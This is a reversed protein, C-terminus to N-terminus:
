PEPLFATKCVPCIQGPSAECPQRWSGRPVCAPHVSGVACLVAPVLEANSAAVDEPTEAGILTSVLNQALEFDRADAAARRRRAVARYQRADM